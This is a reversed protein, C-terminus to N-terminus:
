FPYADDSVAGSAPLRRLVQQRLGPYYECLLFVAEHVEVLVDILDRTDAKEARALALFCHIAVLVEVAADEGWYEDVNRLVMRSLARGM